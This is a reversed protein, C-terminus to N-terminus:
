HHLFRLIANNIQKSHTTVLGHGAGEITVIQAAGNANRLRTLNSLPIVDDKKGFLALSPVNNKKLIRHADRLDTYITHRISSLVASFYGAYRTERQQLAIIEADIGEAMGAKKADRRMKWGGFMSMVVDGILPWRVLLNPREELFGIPAILVLKWIHDRRLSTFQAAIGGGMSYGVLHYGKCVKLANMIEDLEKIFFALDQKGTPRDSYGRGFHDFTLIRYGAQTLAPIQDRWVFSPTTLGHVMVIVQGKVPGHWQYHIVGNSIKIFEGPAGRRIKANMPQRTFCAFVLVLTLVLLILLTPNFNM